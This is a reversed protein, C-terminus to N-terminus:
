MELDVPDGHTSSLRYDTAKQGFNKRVQSLNGM